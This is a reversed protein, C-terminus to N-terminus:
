PYSALVEEGAQSVGVVSYPHFIGPVEMGPSGAPMGPVAIGKLDPRNFLAMVEAAPVHGEIFQGHLTATHCSALHNPVGLERKLSVMDNEVHDVVEFGQEAMYAVWSKCCGCNADRHVDITLSQAAVSVSPALMLMIAAARRLQRFNIDM